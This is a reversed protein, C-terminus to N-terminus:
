LWWRGTFEDWARRGGVLALVIGLLIALAVLHDPTM